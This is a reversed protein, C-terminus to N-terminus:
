LQRRKFILGSLIILLAIYTVSKLLDFTFRGLSFDEIGLIIDSSLSSMNPLIYFLIKVTLLTFESFKDKYIEVFFYINEVSSGAM